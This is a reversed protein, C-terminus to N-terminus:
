TPVLEAPLLASVDSKWAYLNALTAAGSVKGGTASQQATESAKDNKLTGNVFTDIRAGLTIITIRYTTTNTWTQSTSGFVPTLETDVGAVRKYLKITNSAQVCEIKLTNNDDTRRFMVTLTEGTAVTWDLDIIADATMTYTDGSAPSAAFSTYVEADTDMAAVDEVKLFPIRLNPSQSAAFWLVPKLAATSTRYVWVLRTGIILFAGTARQVFIVMVPTTITPTNHSGTDVISFTSTGLVLYYTLGSVLSSHLGLRGIGAATIASLYVAFARGAARSISDSPIYGTNTGSTTGNARLEGASISLINAADTFTLTGPGPEATRPTTLPASQNTSFDDFLVYTPPTYSNSSTAPTAGGANTATVVCTIAAGSDSPTLVYTSATAGGISSGGRKWQYSYSTPSGSWTGDSVTLTQGIDNVGSIAPLVTNAPPPTAGFLNILPHARYM